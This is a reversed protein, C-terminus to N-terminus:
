VVNMQRNFPCINIEFLTEKKTDITICKKNFKAPKYICIYNIWECDIKTRKEGFGLCLDQVVKKTKYIFNAHMM